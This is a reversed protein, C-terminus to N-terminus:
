LAEMAITIPKNRVFLGVSRGARRKLSLAVTWFGRKDGEEGDAEEEDEDLPKWARWFKIDEGGRRVEEGEGGIRGTDLVEAPDESAMRWAKLPTWDAM